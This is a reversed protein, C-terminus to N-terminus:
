AIRRWYLISLTPPINNHPQGGGTTETKYVGITGKNGLWGESNGNTTNLWSNNHNHSPM